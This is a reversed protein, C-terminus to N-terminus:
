PIAPRPTPTPPGAVFHIITENTRALSLQIRAEREITKADHELAHCYRIKAAAQERADRVAAELRALEIRQRANTHTLPWYLVMVFLILAVVVLAIIIQTLVTWINRVAM